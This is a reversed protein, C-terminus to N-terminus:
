LFGKYFLFFGVNKPQHTHKRYEHLHLLQFQSPKLLWTAWPCLRLPRHSNHPFSQQSSFTSDPGPVHMIIVWCPWGLFPAHLYASWPREMRFEGGNSHTHTLFKPGSSLHPKALTVKSSLSLASGSKSTLYVGLIWLPDFCVCRGRKWLVNRESSGNSDRNCGWAKRPGTQCGCSSFISRKVFTHLYCAHRKHGLLRMACADPCTASHLWAAGLSFLTISLQKHPM